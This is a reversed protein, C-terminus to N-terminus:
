HKNGWIVLGLVATIVAGIILRGAWTLWNETREIRVAMEAKNTDIKDKICDLKKFLVAVVNSFEGEGPTIYLTTTASALGSFYSGLPFHLVEVAGGVLPIGAAASTFDFATSPTLM